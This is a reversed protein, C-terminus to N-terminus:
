WGEMRAFPTGTRQGMCVCPGTRASMITSRCECVVQQILGMGLYYNPVPLACSFYQPSRFYFSNTPLYIVGWRSCVWIKPRPANFTKKLLGLGKLPVRLRYPYVWPVNNSKGSFVHWFVLSETSGKAGGTRVGSHSASLPNPPLVVYQLSSCVGPWCHNCKKVLLFGIILTLPLECNVFKTTSIHVIPWYAMGVGRETTETYRIIWM